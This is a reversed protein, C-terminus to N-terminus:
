RTRRTRWDQEWQTLSPLYATIVAVYDSKPACVVHIPRNEDGCGLVLCSHGRADDPYDEVLLGSSLVQRVERTSIMRDPANMQNLAHPLFLIRVAAASRVQELIDLVM